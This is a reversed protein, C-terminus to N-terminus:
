NPKFLASNFDIYGLMLEAESKVKVLEPLDIIQANYKLYANNLHRWAKRIDNHKGLINFVAFLTLILTSVFSLIKVVVVDVNDAFATIALSSGVALIGLITIVWQLRVALVHYTQLAGKVDNLVEETNM